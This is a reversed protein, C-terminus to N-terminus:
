ETVNFWGAEVREWSLGIYCSLAYDEGLAAAPTLLVGAM